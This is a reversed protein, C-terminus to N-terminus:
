IKKRGIQKSLSVNKNSSKQFFSHSTKNKIKLSNPLTILENQKQPSLFPKKTNQLSPGVKTKKKKNQILSHTHTHQFTNYLSV